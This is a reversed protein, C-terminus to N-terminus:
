ANQLHPLSYAFNWAPMFTCFWFKQIKGMVSKEARAVFSIRGVPLKIVISRKSFFIINEDATWRAESRMFFTLVTESVKSMRSNSTSHSTFVSPFCSTLCLCFYEFHSHLFVGTQGPADYNFQTLLLCSLCWEPKVTWWSTM